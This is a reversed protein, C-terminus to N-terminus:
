RPAFASTPTGKSAPDADGGPGLTKMEGSHVILLQANGGSGSSANAIGLTVSGDSGLRGLKGVSGANGPIGGKGEIAKAIGLTVSGDSGLKGM